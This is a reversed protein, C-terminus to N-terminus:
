PPHGGSDWLTIVKTDTKSPSYVTVHEFAFLVLTRLALVMMPKSFVKWPENMLRLGSSFHSKSSYWLCCFWCCCRALTLTATVLFTSRDCWCSGIWLLCNYHSMVAADDFRQFSNLFLTLTSDEVSTQIHKSTKINERAHVWALRSLFRRILRWCSYEITHWSAALYFQESPWSPSISIPWATYKTICMVVYM